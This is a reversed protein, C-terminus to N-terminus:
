SSRICVYCSLFCVDKFAAEQSRRINAGASKAHSKQDHVSQITGRKARIVYRHFTKHVLIEEGKFIVAAFHGANVLIICWQDLSNLSKINNLLDDSKEPINKKGHLICRYMVLINGNNLKLSIKPCSRAIQSYHISSEQNYENESEDSEYVVGENVESDSGSISSIESMNEFEDISVYPKDKLKRKLNFRHIDSKYHSIQEDRDDFSCCCITCYLKDSITLKSIMEVEIGSDKKQDSLTPTQNDDSTFSADVIEVIDDILKKTEKQNFLSYKQILCNLEEKQLNIENTQM